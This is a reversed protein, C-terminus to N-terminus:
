ILTGNFNFEQNQFNDALAKLIVRLTTNSTLGATSFGFSQATAVIAAQMAISLEGFTTALSVGGSFLQPPKGGNTEVYVGGLRQQFLFMGLVTRVVTRWTLTTNVWGAPVNIAELKNKVSNVQPNTLNAELNFPIAFADPESVILADNAASLDAGVFMWPEFGYDIGSWTPNILTGDSFYKPRRPDSKTGTGVIPVIYLRFSM